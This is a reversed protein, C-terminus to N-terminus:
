HILIERWRELEDNTVVKNQQFKLVHHLYNMSDLSVNPNLLKAGNFNLYPNSNLMCVMM